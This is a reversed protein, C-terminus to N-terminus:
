SQVHSMEKKYTLTAIFICLFTTLWYINTLSTTRGSITIIGTVLCGSYVIGSALGLFFKSIRLPQFIHVILQYVIPIVFLCRMTWAYQGYSFREYIFTFLLSFISFLITKAYEKIDLISM